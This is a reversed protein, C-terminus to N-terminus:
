TSLRDVDVHVKTLEGVTVGHSKKIADITDKLSMYVYVNYFM